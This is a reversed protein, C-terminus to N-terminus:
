EQPKDEGGTAADPAAPETPTEPASSASTSPDGSQDTPAQATAPEAPSEAAPSKAEATMETAVSRRVERKDAPSEDAVYAETQKAEEVIEPEPPLDLRVGRLAEVQKRTRLQMLGDITAKVLNKPSTSGYSKTLVDKVGALELVARPAASAIVGTGPGAPMLMVKSAGFRGIVRHPITNGKLPVRITRRRAQKISKEVSPPVENAKAYGFGVQGKRDGVVTLAGFSFRRGGKVVTACRYLKVLTDEFNSGEGRDFDRGGRRGGGSRERQPPKSETKPSAAM